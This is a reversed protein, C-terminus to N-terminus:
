EPVWSAPPELKVPFVRSFSFFTLSQLSKHGLGPQAVRGLRQNDDLLAPICDWVDRAEMPSRTGEQRTEQANSFMKGDLCTAPKFLGM